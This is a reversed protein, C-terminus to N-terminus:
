WRARHDEVAGFLRDIAIIEGDDAVVQGSFHGLVQDLAGSILVMQMAERRRACPHFELRVRQSGVSEIRWPQMVDGRDFTFRVRDDIKSLRGDIYLANETVGASDTWGAGLNFGLPRERERSTCMAWNWGSAYPWVGRAFDLWATTDSADLADTRGAVTLRGSAPLCSQKSTFHYHRDDWPIVLNLSEHDVPREVVAELDIEAASGRRPCRVRFAIQRATSEIRVQAAPHDFRCLGIVTDAHECGRGLLHRASHAHLENTQRDYVYVAAMNAYDLNMVGIMAFHRPSCIGWADWRKQRPWPGYLTCRHLPQRSWGLAARNLTRDAHCLELPQGSVIERCRDPTSPQPSDVAAPPDQLHSSM